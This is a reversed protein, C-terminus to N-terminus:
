LCEQIINIAQNAEEKTFTLHPRIRISRNGCPLAIMKQNIGSLLENRSDTSDIDFAIMLGRGRFNDIVYKKSKLNKLCELFYEGVVATNQVLNDEKIIEMFMTSRVMDVMSGGWTSNIRSHVHFVNDKVEDIRDTSCIGCVQTKKGFCLIDPIVDYHQYAWMKGTLGMGTQVEDFILLADYENALKRLELFYENRFHNDGGEGQIPELIIAAVNGKKLAKTIEKLSIIELEEVDSSIPFHIKPNTVRTWKFKPFWKTKPNNINGNNTLSLTYGSRGHFAEKLHIVDLKNENIKKSRQMKWDFATKLANEVALAGGSIFFHWKFDTTISAFTEVFNLYEHCYMDSNAIKHVAANLLREKQGLIKPHNWGLPQSAFQSYCDLYKNNTQCDVLWSGQSAELDIVKAKYDVLIHGSLKTHIDM